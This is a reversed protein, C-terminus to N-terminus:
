SEIMQELKQEIEPISEYLQEYSDIVFYKDQLIDTRFDTSFIQGVDFDFKQTADTL